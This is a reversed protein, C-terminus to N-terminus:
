PVPPALLPRSHLCIRNRGQRRARSLAKDATRVLQEPSSIVHHPFCSIGISASVCLSGGPGTRLTTLERWVREAVTLAGALSTRPLLIAFEEGGHRALLDTERVSRQLAGAVDRLVADGMLHGHEDNLVTFHDLDLLILSLPDDHRQARRFEERLREQFYCPNHVQTLEDTISLRELSALRSRYAEERQRLRLCRALRALLEQADVPERVVEVGLRLAVLAAEGDGEPALVLVPPGQGEAEREALPQLLARVQGGPPGLRLLVLRTEDALSHSRPGAAVRHVAYGAQELLPELRPEQASPEEVLLILSRAGVDVRM